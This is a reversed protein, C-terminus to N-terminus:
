AARSLGIEALFVQGQRTLVVRDGDQDSEVVGQKNMMKITQRIEQLNVQLSEALSAAGVPQPQDNQLNEQLINLITSKLEFYKM